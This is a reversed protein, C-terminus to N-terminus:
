VVSKRDEAEDRLKDFTGFRSKDSPLPNNVKWGGNAYQDFDDAPSITLDMNASDIAKPNNDINCAGFAFVLLIMFSIKYIQKM